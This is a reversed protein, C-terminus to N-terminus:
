KLHELNLILNIADLVDNCVHKAPFESHNNEGQFCGTKVLISIWGESELQNAGRIDSYPNDGIAYIRKPLSVTGFLKEQQHKLMEKAYHYTIAHPKGYVQYKLIQGTQLQYLNKICEVLAGMTFRPLSFEGAYTFDPNAFHLDICQKTTKKFSSMSILGDTSQLVDIVVQICEGWDSPEEFLIIGAYPLPNSKEEKLKYDSKIGTTWFTSYKGPYLFPRTAIYDQFTTYNKFGYCEALKVSTEHSKSILLVDSDKYKESLPKIPTHAVMVREEEVNFDLVKSIKKAKEKESFGGNNTVFVYPVKAKGNSDILLNLAKKATSIIQGDKMLVGDIDFVIGFEM